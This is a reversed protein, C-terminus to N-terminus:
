MKDFRSYALPWQGRDAGSNQDGAAVLEAQRGVTHSKRRKGLEAHCSGRNRRLYLTWPQDSQKPSQIRQLLRRQCAADGEGQDKRIQVLFCGRVMALSGAQVSESISEPQRQLHDAPRVWQEVTDLRYQYGLIFGFYPSALTSPRTGLSAQIM